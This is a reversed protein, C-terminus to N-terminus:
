PAILGKDKNALHFQRWRQECEARLERSLEALRQRLQEDTYRELCGRLGPHLVGDPGFWPDHGFGRVHDLIQEALHDERVQVATWTAIAGAAVMVLPLHRNVLDFPKREAM